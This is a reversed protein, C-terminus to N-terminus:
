HRNGTWVTVPQVVVMKKEHATRIADAIVDEISRFCCRLRALSGVPDCSAFALDRFQHHGIIELLADV